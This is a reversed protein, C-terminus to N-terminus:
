KDKEIIVSFSDNKEARIDIDGSKVDPSDTKSFYNIKSFTLEYSKMSLDQIVNKVEKYFDEFDIQVFKYKNRVINFDLLIPTISICNNYIAEVDSIEINNNFYELIKQKFDKQPEFKHRKWYIWFYLNQRPDHRSELYAVHRFQSQYTVLPPMDKKLNVFPPININLLLNKFKEIFNRYRSVFDYIFISAFTYDPDDYQFLSVAIGPIGYIFGETVASFTGSVTLDMGMNAGRNIGSIILDIKNELYGRAIIVCDAPSGTCSYIEMKGDKYIEKIRVPIQYTISHGSVSRERDPAVVILRDLINNEDKGFSQYLSILGESNYGDDNTILINM